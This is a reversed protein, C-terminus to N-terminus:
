SGPRPWRTACRHPWRRRRRRCLRRPLRDLVAAAESLLGDAVLSRLRTTVPDAAQEHLVAFVLRRAEPPAVSLEGTAYGLLSRAGARAARRARLPEALEHLLVARLGEPGADGLVKRAAAVVAQAATHAASHPLRGWRLAAAELESETPGPGTFPRVPDTLREGPGKATLFDALHRLRLVALHRACRAYAPHPLDRPLPDPAAVVISLTALATDM